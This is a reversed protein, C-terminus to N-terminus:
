SQVVCHQHLEPLVAGPMSETPHGSWGLGLVRGGSGGAAEACLSSAAWLLARWPMPTPSAPSAGAVGMHGTLRVDGQLSILLAAQVQLDYAKCQEAM